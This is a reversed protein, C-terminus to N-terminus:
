VPFIHRERGVLTDTQLSIRRRGAFQGVVRTYRVNPWHTVM